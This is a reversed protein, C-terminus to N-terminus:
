SPVKKGHCFPCVFTGEGRGRLKPGRNSFGLLIESVKKDFEVDVVVILTTARLTV